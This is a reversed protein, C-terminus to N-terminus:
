PPHNAFGDNRCLSRQLGGDVVVTRENRDRDSDDRAPSLAILRTISKGFWLRDYSWVRRATRNQPCSLAISADKKM